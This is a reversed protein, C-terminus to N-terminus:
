IEKGYIFRSEEERLAIMAGRVDFVILNRKPGIRIVTIIAGKTFGISLMREKQYSTLKEDLCIVEIIDGVKFESISKM